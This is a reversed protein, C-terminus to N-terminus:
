KKNRGDSGSNCIMLHPTQKDAIPIDFDKLHFLENIHINKIFYNM